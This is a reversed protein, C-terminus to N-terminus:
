RGAANGADDGADGSRPDREDEAAEAGARTVLALVLGTMYSHHILEVARWAPIDPSTGTM